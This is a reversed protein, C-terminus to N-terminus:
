IYGSRSDGEKLDEHKCSLGRKTYCMPLAWALEGLILLKDLKSVELKGLSLLFSIGIDNHSSKPM